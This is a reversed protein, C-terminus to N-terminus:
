LDCTIETKIKKLEEAEFIETIKYNIRGYNVSGDFRKDFAEKIKEPEIDVNFNNFYKELQEKILQESFLENESYIVAKVSLIKDKNYKTRIEINNQVGNYDFYIKKIKFTRLKGDIVTEYTDCGYEECYSLLKSSILSFKKDLPKNIVYIGLTNVFLYIILFLSIVYIIKKNNYKTEKVIFLINFIIGIILVIINIIFIINVLLPYYGLKAFFIKFLLMSLLIFMNTIFLIKANNSIKIEKDM